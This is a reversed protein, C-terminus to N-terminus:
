WEKIVRRWEDPTLAVCSTGHQEMAQEWTDYFYLGVGDPTVLAEDTQDNVYVIEVNLDDRSQIQKPAYRM